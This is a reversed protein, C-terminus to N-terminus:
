WYISSISIPRKSKGFTASMKSRCGVYTARECMFTKMLFVNHRQYWTSTPEERTRTSSQCHRKPSRLMIWFPIFWLPKVRFINKMTNTDINETIKETQKIRILLKLVAKPSGIIVVTTTRPKLQDAYNNIGKNVILDWIDISKNMAFEFKRILESQQAERDRYISSKSHQDTDNSHCRRNSNIFNKYYIIKKKM